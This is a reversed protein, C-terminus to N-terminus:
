RAAAGAAAPGDELAAYVMDRLLNRMALRQNPAQMMFVVFMDEAPDVWFYTGAAGGWNYEGVSGASTAQGESIRVAFGLGFGYGPGPLYYKGPRIHPGLHNATMFQVTKPGLIRVGDLDGGNLLMQLFRAYDGITSIMGGGGSEWAAPQMPDFLDVPGIKADEPFPQALRERDAPDTVRFETDAMGLPGTIREKLFTGLPQGSVVEIVRGLVDTAHSYEWATGPHHELPMAAIRRGFEENSWAPNGIGAENYAKRASGAGFFGYTLGATHRLLDQVTMAGRAPELRAEGDSGPEPDVAVQVERFEPIYKAVPDALGLRGEEVLMMTAVSVIPKTMSYIRFITDPTMEPGDPSRRGVSQLYGIEGHRAIMLVAGPFLKDAVKQELMETLRQLREPALGLKAPEGAPLDAAAAIGSGLLLAALAAAGALGKLGGSAPRAIASMFGM